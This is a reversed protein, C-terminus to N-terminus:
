RDFQVKPAVEMTKQSNVKYNTGLNSFNNNLVNVAVVIKLFSVLFRYIQDKWM